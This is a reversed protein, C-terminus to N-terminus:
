RDTLQLCRLWLKVVCAINLYNKGSSTDCTILINRQIVFTSDQLLFTALVEMPQKTDKKKYSFSRIWSVSENM